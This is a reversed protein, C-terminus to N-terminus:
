GAYENWEAQRLKIYSAIVEEGLGSKLIRSRDLARL